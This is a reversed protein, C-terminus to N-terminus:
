SISQKKDRSQMISWLQYIVDQTLDAPGYLFNGVSSDTSNNRLIYNLQYSDLVLDNLPTINLNIREALIGTIHVDDIWFYESRQAEQYLKYVIDSSYILAWGPCYPPYYKYPYEKFSVRWKSRYSRKVKARYFPTCLLLKKSNWPSLDRTLFAMVSPMNVFIDDDTKLIFKAQRCYYVAFKFAMVHKYTMNRYADKFSGQILDGYIINEEELEFQKNQDEVEGLLFVVKVNNRSEGWTNRITQRKAKNDPASHVLVLLFPSSENCPFNM